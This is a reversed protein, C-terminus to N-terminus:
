GNGPCNDHSCLDGWKCQKHSCCKDTHVHIWPPHKKKTIKLLPGKGTVASCVRWKTGKSNGSVVFGDPKEEAWGIVLPADARDEKKEPATNSDGADSEHFSM